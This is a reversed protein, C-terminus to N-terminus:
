LENIFKRADRAKLKGAKVLNIEKVAQSIGKLIEEKSPEDIAEIKKVFHLSKILELFFPYNSEPIQLTVQKM